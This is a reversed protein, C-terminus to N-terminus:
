SDSKSKRNIITKVIYYLLMILTFLYAIRGIYDGHKTYFTIKDNANIQGKIVDKVWWDTAQSIEGRQNIFCSIGTNASRAISRRTEIARLSSFSLHQSYGPTDRWWGDNTIVLLYDAGKLVFGTMFEGFISEYCIAPGICISDNDSYFVEREDQTGLSGSAGGLEITLEGLYKAFPINEVGVVLKSKNYIQIEKDKEVQISTNYSEYFEGDDGYSRTAASREEGEELMRYSSVGIIFRINPYDDVFNRITQINDYADIDNEWVGNPLATEPGIVFDTNEDTLSDASHLLVKLQEEETMGGFKDNFPDINPQLIVFSRPNSKEKYTYFMILSITIPVILVFLLIIINSRLKLLGKKFFYNKFISILLINLLLVWFSGGLIGTYEYWQILSINQAFGNGLTLWPWTLDWNLHLYEFSIWFVILSFYGLQNGLKRRTSHFVWFPIAM